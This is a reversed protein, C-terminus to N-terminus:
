LSMRAESVIANERGHGLTAEGSSPLLHVPPINREDGAFSVAFHVNQILCSAGAEVSFLSLRGGLEYEKEESRGLNM